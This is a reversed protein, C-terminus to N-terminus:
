FRTTLRTLWDPSVQVILSELTRDLGSLMALGLVVLALGLLRRGTEGAQRMRGGVSAFSRRAAYGILALAGAAGLGFAAM